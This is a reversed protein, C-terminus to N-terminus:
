QEASGIDKNPCFHDPVMVVRSPDFVRNVGLKDFERIALPATIDNALVMDVRVNVFEGAAVRSKGSHAALIREGLNM